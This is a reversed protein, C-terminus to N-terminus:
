HKQCDKEKRIAITPLAMLQLNEKETLFNWFMKITILKRKKTNSKYNNTQILFDTYNVFCDDITGNTPDYHNTLQNLDTTYAHITKTSLNQMKKYIIFSNIYREM